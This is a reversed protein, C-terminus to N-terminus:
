AVNNVFALSVLNWIVVSFDSTTHDECNFMISSVFSPKDSTSM